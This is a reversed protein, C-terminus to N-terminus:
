WHGRHCVPPDAPYSCIRQVKRPSGRGPRFDSVWCGLWPRNHTIRQAMCYRLLFMASMPL